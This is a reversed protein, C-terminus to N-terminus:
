NWVNVFKTFDINEKKYINQFDLLSFIDLNELNNLQNKEIMKIHVNPNDELVLHMKYLDRDRRFGKVEFYVDYDPCYFDPTYTHTKKFKLRKREFTINKSLLFEAFQKEWTGQVKIGGVSYWKLGHNPNHELYKIRGLSIKRKTEDSQKHSPYDRLGLEVKKKLTEKSKKASESTTCIRGLSDKKMNSAVKCEKLHSALKRRSPLIEGCYRCEWNYANPRKKIEKM